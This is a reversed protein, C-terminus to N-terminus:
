KPPFIMLKTLLGIDDVKEINWVTDFIKRIQKAEIYKKAAGRFKDELEGDTLLDDGFGHPTDVIKKFRRGDRTTIESVGRLSMDPLTPDAEVTIKDILDLVVPDNLKEPRNSEPGFTQEKIAIANAYFASHDANESSRPYKKALTTTHRAERPGATIKVSVIDEPKLNNERVIGLTAMIHGQTSSNAPLYKHKTNLIRWGSFDTLRELDMEGNLLVQRWGCDGEVIRVPGTFGRKALMCALIADHAVWGFRINRAMTNEERNSDLIALPLSHSACIGIANAIQAETMGMLRGLSPPITLGGRVDSTWGRADFGGFGGEPSEAVRAGLEYSIVLSTLFDRGGAKERESVALISAISDANHGGGGLDNHDRSRVPFSNVLAANLTSTRFGSGIVTAEETGGLERSVAECIPRGPVEYGEVACALADLLCRKAEHVVEPPLLNFRLVLGYRAYQYAISSRYSLELNQWALDRTFSM